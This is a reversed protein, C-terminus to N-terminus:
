QHSFANNTQYNTNRTYANPLLLVDSLRNQSENISITGIVSNNHNHSRAQNFDM